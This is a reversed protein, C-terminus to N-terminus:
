KFYKVILDHFVFKETNGTKSLKIHVWPNRIRDLKHTSKEDRPIDIRWLRFKKKLPSIQLSSSLAKSGYQYENWVEITSFPNSTKTSLSNANDVKTNDSYHDAILEINTFIKDTLPEPNVRYEISYYSAYDGRFMTSIATNTFTTSLVFSNGLLNFICCKNEYPLFSTFTQLLENYVLCKYGGIIYLDNTLSDYSLTFAEKEFMTDWKATNINEKFWQSMGAASSIDKIGDKSINFLRKNLSDIFYIGSPTEKLAWKNLCGINTSAYIYGSVKGSNSLEVPVGQETSLQIRENFGINGIAKDQFFLISNNLTSLKNITGYQGDVTLYNALSINSWSDIDESPTKTMSWAIENSFTNNQFKSDLVNYKFINNDQTYATNIQNYNTPRANLINSTGKNSYCGDINKHTEVMFSTIDIVSNEDEETFPYTKLCNYRQFYTDGETIPTDEGINYSNGIPIWNISQIAYDTYGGYLSKYPITRYLEGIYIYPVDCQLISATSQYYELVDEWKLKGNELKVYPCPINKYDGEWYNGSTTDSTKPYSFLGKTESYSPFDGLYAVNSIYKSSGSDWMLGVRVIINEPVCKQQKTSSGPTAPDQDTSIYYVINTRIDGESTTKYKTKITSNLSSIFNSLNDETGTYMYIGAFFMPNVKTSDTVNSDWPYKTMATDDLEYMEKLNFLTESSNLRPLISTVSTNEETNLVPSGLSFAVHATSKYKIRVPDTVEPQTSELGSDTVVRYPTTTTVLKDYNGYYYITRGKGKIEKIQIDQSDFVAVPSIESSWYHPVLIGANNDKPFFVTNDSYLRNAIIKHKLQGYLQELGAEEQNNANIGLLSGTKNWLYVKYKAIKSNNLTNNNWEFDQYMWGSTFIKSTNSNGLLSDKIYGANPSVGAIDTTLLADSYNSKFTAIGVIRFNLDSSSIIDETEEIEPSHLTVISSDIYFQEQKSNIDLSLYNEDTIEIYLSVERGTCKDARINTSRKHRVIGFETDYWGTVSQSTTALKKFNDFSLMGDFELNWNTKLWNNFDDYTKEWSSHNCSCQDLIQSSDIATTAWEETSSLSTSSIKWDLIYSPNFGLTLIYGKEGVGVKNYEVIPPVKESILQLESAEEINTGVNDMHEFHASGNRPRMIWSAISFPKNEAREKYNFLTPCIAGQAVISRNSYSTEAMLIRYNVFKSDVTLTSPWNFRATSVIEKNGSSSVSPAVECRKDGIWVPETWQGKKSQFQIAFRYIEGYKFTRIIRSSNELQTSDDNVSLTDTHSVEKTGFSICSADYFLIDGNDGTSVEKLSELSSRMDASISDGALEINGLFLTDEKQTLTGAICEKGGIFYLLSSDVQTNNYNTDNILITDKNTIDIDSVISFVIPSDKSTRIASYVRLYDFSHDLRTIEITFDCSVNDDPKAGSDKNSLFQLDSAWLINTESGFKNYYTIFYQITGSPFMGIGRYNKTTNVLPYKYVTPIFDFKYTDKLYYSDKVINIYRPQNIGDVWYVKQIDESEYYPLCEIPNSPNFGLSGHYLLKGTFTPNNGALSLELRYINDENGTTFLVLYKGLICHGLYQGKISTAEQFVISPTPEASGETYYSFYRDVSTGITFSNVTSPVKGSILSGKKITTSSTDEEGDDTTYNYTITVNSGVPYEAEFYSKLATIRKEVLNGKDDTELYVKNKLSEEYTEKYSFYSIKNPTTLVKDITINTSSPLKECTVSLTTNDGISTIRINHNEFSFENSSKSISTDQYMGRNKFEALKAEM